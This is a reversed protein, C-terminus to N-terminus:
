NTRNIGTKVGKAKSKKRLVGSIKTLFVKSHTKKVKIEEIILM